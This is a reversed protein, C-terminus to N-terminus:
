ANTLGVSERGWEVCLPPSNRHTGQISVCNELLILPSDMDFFNFFLQWQANLEKKANGEQRRGRM